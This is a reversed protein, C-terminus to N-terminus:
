EFQRTSPVLLVLLLVPLSVTGAKAGIVAFSEMSRHEDVPRADPASPSCAMLRVFARSPLTQKLLASQGDPMSQSVKLSERQQDFHSLAVPISVHTDAAQTVVLRTHHKFLSDIYMSCTLPKPVLRCPGYGFFSHRSGGSSGGSSSSSAKRQSMAAVDKASEAGQLTKHAM